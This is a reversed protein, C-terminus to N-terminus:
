EPLPSSGTLSDVRIASLEVQYVHDGGGGCGATVVNSPATLTVALQLAMSSDSGDEFASDTKGGASVSCSGDDFNEFTTAFILYSGPPLSLTPPSSQTGAIPM